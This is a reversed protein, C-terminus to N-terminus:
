SRRTSAVGYLSTPKVPTRETLATHALQEGYVAASSFFIVRRPPREAFVRGLNVAM